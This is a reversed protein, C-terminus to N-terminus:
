NAAHPEVNIFKRGEKGTSFVVVGHILGLPHPGGKRPSGVGKKHAM